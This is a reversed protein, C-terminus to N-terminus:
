TITDFFEKFEELGNMNNTFYYDCDMEFEKIQKDFDNLPYDNTPNHIHVITFGAERLDKFEQAMRLDTIIINDTNKTTEEIIQMTKNHFYLEDYSRLFVSTELWMERPTKQLINGNGLDINLPKEKLEPPCDKDVYPFIDQVTSKLTDAFAIRIYNQEKILFDAFYDKGSGAIGCFALKM